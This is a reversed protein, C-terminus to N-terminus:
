KALLHDLTVCEGSALECEAEAVDKDLNPFERMVDMTEMWSEFEEASL